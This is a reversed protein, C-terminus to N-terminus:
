ITYPALVSAGTKFISFVVERPHGGWGGSLPQKGLEPTPLCLAQMHHCKALRAARNSPLILLRRRASDDNGAGEFWWQEQCGHNYRFEWLQWQSWAFKGIGQSFNGKSVKRHPASLGIKPVEFENRNRQTPTIRQVCSVSSPLFRPSGPCCLYGWSVSASTDSFPFRKGLWNDSWLLTIIGYRRWSPWTGNWMKQNWRVPPPENRLNIFTHIFVNEKM